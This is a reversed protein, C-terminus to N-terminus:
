DRNRRGAHGAVLLGAGFLLAATPEPVPAASESIVWGRQHDPSTYRAGVHWEDDGILDTSDFTITWTYTAGVLELDPSLDVCVFSGNNGNCGGGNLPGDQVTGTPGSTMMVNAYNNAVKFEVDTLTTALVSYDGSTDITYTAEYSDGGLSIVDLEYTGGFCGATACDVYIASATSSLGFVALFSSLALILKINM